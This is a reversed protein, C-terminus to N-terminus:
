PASGATRSERELDAGAFDDTEKPRVDRALARGDLHECSQEEGRAARNPEVALADEDPQGGVFVIKTVHRFFRMKVLTRLAMGNVMTM